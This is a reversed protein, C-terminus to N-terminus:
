DVAEFWSQLQSSTPNIINEWLLWRHPDHEVRLKVVFIVAAKPPHEQEFVWVSRIESVRWRVSINSTRGIAAAPHSCITEEWFLILLLRLADKSSRM